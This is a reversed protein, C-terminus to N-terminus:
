NSVLVQTLWHKLPSIYWDLPLQSTMDRRWQLSNNAGIKHVFRIIVNVKAVAIRRLPIAISHSHVNQVRVGAGKCCEMGKICASTTNTCGWILVM